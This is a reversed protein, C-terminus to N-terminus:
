ATVSRLKRRLPKLVVVALLAATIDFAVMLYLSTDWNGGEALLNAYPVFLAAVGKAAYLVGYNTAAFTRGFTDACISPFLSFIEGWAFFVAGALLVFALPHHAFHIFAFVGAGELSFVLLMTRERGLRDSVWGFFPRSLGNAILNLTLAFTLASMTVGAISVPVDAVKFDRAMPALNATVMLGGSAVLVFMTFMAWFAPTRAMEHWRYDGAHDGRVSPSSGPARLFLAIVMLATGQALGLLLFAGQYGQARIAGPILLVTFVSGIGYGASTLGVALGRRGEFWKLVNGYAVSLVVGTGIGGLCEGLYLMHLSGAFSNICWSLGVLAGGFLGPLRPGFKDVFYGEFPLLWSQMLIFLAFAFQIAPRGWHYQQDMPHVFLTWGYQLNGAVAM